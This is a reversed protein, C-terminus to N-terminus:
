KLVATKYSITVILCHHKDTLCTTSVTTLQSTPFDFSVEEIGNSSQNVYIKRLVIQLFM